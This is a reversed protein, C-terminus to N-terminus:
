ATRGATIEFYAFRFGTGPVAYVHQCDLGAAAIVELWQERQRPQGQASLVHALYFDVDAPDRYLEPEALIFAKAGPRRLLEGYRRLLSIVAAEGNRFHEHLAGVAVFLDCTAAEAPWEDPRFADAVLFSTRGSVGAEKARRTAFGIPESAIDLGVGRLQLDLHCLDVILGGTGCGLDLVAQAGHKRILDSVLRTGFSRFLVECHRGLAEADRTVDIGYTETRTLQGAMSAFVPGYAEAYYGLLAGALEDLLPAGLATIRWRAADSEVLGRIEMYRLVQQVLETSGDPPVLDPLPTWEASLRETVGARALGVIATCLVYSRALDGAGSEALQRWAAQATSDAVDVSEVQSM